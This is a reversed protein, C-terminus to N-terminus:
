KDMEKLGHGFFGIVKSILAYSQSLLDERPNFP